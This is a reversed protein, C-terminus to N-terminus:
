FLLTESLPPKFSLTSTALFVFCFPPPFLLGELALLDETLFVFAAEDALVLFPFLQEEFGEFIEEWFFDFDWSEESVL